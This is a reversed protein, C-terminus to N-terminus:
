LEDTVSRFSGRSSKAGNQVVQIEQGASLQKLKDWNAQNKASIEDGVASSVTIGLCFFL